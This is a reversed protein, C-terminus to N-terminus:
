SVLGMLALLVKLTVHVKSIIRVVVKEDQAEKLSSLAVFM